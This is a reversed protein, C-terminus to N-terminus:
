YIVERRTPVIKGGALYAGSIAGAMAGLFKARLVPEDM